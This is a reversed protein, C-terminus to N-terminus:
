APSIAEILIKSPARAEQLQQYCAPALHRPTDGASASPEGQTPPAKAGGPRTEESASRPRWGSTTAKWVRRGCSTSRSPPAPTTAGTAKPSRAPRASASRWRGPPLRRSRLGGRPGGAGVRYRGQDRNRILRRRRGPRSRPGATCCGGTRSRLARGAADRSNSNTAGSSSRRAIRMTTCSDYPLRSPTLRLEDHMSQLLTGHVQRPACVASVFGRRDERPWHNQSDTDM